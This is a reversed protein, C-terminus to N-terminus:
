EMNKMEKQIFNWSDRCMDSLTRTCEWHLLKNAKKSDAYYAPLDGQRRGQVRYEIKKNAAKEYAQIVELVSSGKGAGLNFVDYGHFDSVYRLAQIHGEALDMVHIYDRICTGDKTDYDDGFLNIYPLKGAAVLSLYPMLNNPKGKPLEGIIGSEHAGAPNFYRLSLIGFRSDSASLDKLIHEAALKSYGYPNAGFVEMTEVFPIENQSGYVTASSSFIFKYCGYEKILRCLQIIGILNNTYYLVPNEVSEGVAKLAAFHIVADIQNNEFIGKMGEYNLVDEQYFLIKKGTLLEIKSVMDKSANVLNDVVIVDYGQLLLSVCTHSGIFGCGGTVLIKM